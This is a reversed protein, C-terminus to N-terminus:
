VIAVIVLNRELRLQGFGYRSLGETLEGMGSIGRSKIGPVITATRVVWHYHVLLELRRM